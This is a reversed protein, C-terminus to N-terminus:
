KLSIYKGNEIKFPNPFENQVDRTVVIYSRYLM